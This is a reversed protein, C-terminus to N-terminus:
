WGGPMYSNGGGGGGGGPITLTAVGAAVSITAGAGVVNLSMAEGQSVGEDSIAINAAGPITVTGTVGDAVAVVGNGVFNLKRATGAQVGEDEIVLPQGGSGSGSITNANRWGLLRFFSNSM